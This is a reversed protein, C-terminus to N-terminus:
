AKIGHHPFVEFTLGMSHNFAPRDIKLDEGQKDFFYVLNETAMNGILEDKAMPCGGFGKLASDFRRCGNKFAADIKEQVKANMQAFTEFVEKTKFLIIEHQKDETYLKM